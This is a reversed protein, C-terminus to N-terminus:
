FQFYIFNRDPTPLTLILYIMLSLGISVKWWKTNRIIEELEKNKLYWNATLTILMIFLVIVISKSDLLSLGNSGFSFMTSIISFAQEFTSARFFVWTITVLFFTLLGFFFQTFFHDKIKLYHFKEKLFKEAILYFGHLMGWAVFTWAAGHWLGGILMTIMLNIYTRNKGKRNGGCAIYVYDRLWTSLTIHWRRWFDSFGVAAYPFYFNKPLKFGLCLAVGIACISYGAFDCLIQGSFALTGIWATVFDVTGVHNYVTDAVPALFADSVVSKLFLGITLWTLGLGIQDWNLTKADRCQSLFKDSRVIPGAVLQPFFTVYLAFDLFSKCPKASGKYIDITYSLTQFTYFSIGIPLIINLEPPVYNVDFLSLLWVFNNLLFQSYKFFALLGLNITLSFALFIKKRSIDKSAHVKKALVFDAVTSLWILFVFPPNWVAYFIYSSLLLVCKRTEWKPILYYLLLVIALFIVFTYSNFLM